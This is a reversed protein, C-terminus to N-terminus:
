GLIGSLLLKLCTLWTCSLIPLVTSADRTLGVVSTKDLKHYLLISLYILHQPVLVVKLLLHLLM